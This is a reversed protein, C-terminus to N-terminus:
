AAPRPVRDRAEFLRLQHWYPRGQWWAVALVAIAVVMALQVMALRGAVALTPSASAGPLAFLFSSVPMVMMLNKLAVIKWKSQELWLGVGSTLVPVILASFYLLVPSASGPRFFSRVVAPFILGALALLALRAILLATERSTMTGSPFLILVLLVWIAAAVLGFLFASQWGPLSLHGILRTFVDRRWKRWHSPMPDRGLALEFLLVFALFAAAGFLQDRAVNKAGILHVVPAAFMALLPLVRAFFCYNEARPAVNRVANVLFFLTILVVNFYDLPSDLFGFAPSSAGAGVRMGMFRGGFMGSFGQAGFVLLIVILVRMVKAVGSAWLGAASLVACIVFMVLCRGFDALVDANDTFYRVVLYPLMTVLLLAAQVLLSVWKGLVVRWANLRTLMLLDLTRGDVELQMGGLARSPTVLILQVGIITWFFGSTAMAGGMRAAPSISGQTALAGLMLVLMITQFIMLTGVFGRTRLGQRLEKVLMPPLWGPFDRQLVASPPLPPPSVTATASTM